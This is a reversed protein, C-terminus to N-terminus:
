GSKNANEVVARVRDFLARVAVITARRDLPPEDPDSAEYRLQVAFANYKTLDWYCGVDCGIEELKAVLTAISHTLPYEEGRVAIWAKLTKEAAQQAHFGFVEEDFTETDTMGGLARLDKEAMSLLERAHDRDNM